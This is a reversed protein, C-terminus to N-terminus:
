EKETTAPKGRGAQRLEDLAARTLLLRKQRLITYANFQSTPAVVIGPINRASKYLVEDRGATGVLCTEGKLKLAELIAAMPKTKVETV